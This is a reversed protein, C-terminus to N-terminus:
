FNIESFRLLGYFCKLCLFTPDELDILRETIDSPLYAGNPWQSTCIAPCM